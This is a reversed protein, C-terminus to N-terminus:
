KGFIFIFLSLITSLDVILCDRCFEKIVFFQLFIFYLAVIAGFILSYFIIQYKLESSSVMQLSTVLILFSFAFVGILSVKIGFFSSFQSSQVISCSNKIGCLQSLPETYIILSTVLSILLLFIISAYLINKQKM